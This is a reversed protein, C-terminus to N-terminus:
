FDLRMLMLFIKINSKLLCITSEFKLPHTHTHTNTYINLEIWLVLLTATTKLKIWWHVHVAAVIILFFYKIQILAGHLMDNQCICIRIKLIQILTFMNKSYIIFLYIFSFIKKREREARAGGGWCSPYLDQSWSVSM